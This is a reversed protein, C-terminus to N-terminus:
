CLSGIMGLLLEPESKMAQYTKQFVIKLSPREVLNEQSKNDLSDTM